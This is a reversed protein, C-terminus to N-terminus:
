WYGDAAHKAWDLAAIRPRLFDPIPRNMDDAFWVATLSSCDADPNVANFCTFDCFYILQPYSDEPGNLSFLRLAV